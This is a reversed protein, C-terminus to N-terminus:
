VSRNTQGILLDELLDLSFRKTWTSLPQHSSGRTPRHIPGRGLGDVLRNSSNRLARSFVCLHILVWLSAHMQSNSFYFEPYTSQSKWNTPKPTPQPISQPTPRSIRRWRGFNNALLLIYEGVALIVRWRGLDNALPRQPDTQDSLKDPNIGRAEPLSQFM